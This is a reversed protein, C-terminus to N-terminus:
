YLRFNVEVAIEVAVPKGNLTAPEFRWRNVADIAKQDLGMGLSRQVRINHARGDLGVVMWLSVSGQLKIRRAEDSYEPEPDYIPRPQTVGGEGPRMSRGVGHGSGYGDGVGGCCGDGIGGGSGPGNSPPGVVNSAPDGLVGAQALRVDQGMITPIEPLVPKENLILASPAALQWDPSQKPLVGHSAPIKMKNGGGGTFAIPIPHGREVPDLVRVPSKSVQRATLLILVALLAQGTFSALFSAPRTRYSGYTQGFVTPWLQPHTPHTSTM